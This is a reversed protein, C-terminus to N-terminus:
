KAMDWGKKLRALYVAAASGTYNDKLVQEIKNWPLEVNVSTDSDISTPPTSKLTDVTNDNNSNKLTKEEITDSKEEVKNNKNVVKNSVMITLTAKNEKLDGLLFNDHLVKGKLLIKLQTTDMISEVNTVLYQKVQHITDNVSFSVDMNFKPPRINKLTLEVTESGDNSISDSSSGNKHSNVNYRYKKYPLPSLAVGLNEIQNLPKVYDNPYVPAELTALTMFKIFDSENATM